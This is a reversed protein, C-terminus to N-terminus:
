HAGTTPHVLAEIIPCDQICGDGACQKELDGLVSRIRQLDSIRADIIKLKHATLEKVDSQDGSGDALHLLNRIETLTFGLEKARGIFGLRDVSAQQYLRYGSPSREPQPILGEKEYYRITEVSFGTAKAVKGITSTTDM